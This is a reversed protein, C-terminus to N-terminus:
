RELSMLFLNTPHCFLLSPSNPKESVKDKCKGKKREKRDNWRKTESIRQGEDEQIVEKKVNWTSIGNDAVMM